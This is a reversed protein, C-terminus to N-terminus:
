SKATINLDVKEVKEEQCDIDDESCDIKATKDMQSSCGGAMVSIASTASFGTLCVFAIYSILRKM